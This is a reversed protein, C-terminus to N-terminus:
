ARSKVRILPDRLRWHAAKGKGETGPTAPSTM